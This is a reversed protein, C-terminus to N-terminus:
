MLGQIYNMEEYEGSTTWGADLLDYLLQALERDASVIQRMVGDHQRRMKNVYYHTVDDSDSWHASQLRQFIAKLRPPNNGIRVCFDALGEEDMQATLGFSGWRFRNVVFEADNQMYVTFGHAAIFGVKSSSFDVRLDLWSVPDFTFAYNTRRIGSPWYRCPSGFSNVEIGTIGSEGLALAAATLANSTILNGQSHSYIRLSRRAAGDLTVLIQYLSYTAPNDDILHGVFDVLSLGPNSARAAVHAAQIVTRWASMSSVLPATMNLKDTICQGLDAWFGDTRNYVGIVPCAQLLSLGRASSAHDAGTNDMGNVFIVRRNQDFWSKGAAEESTYLGIQGDASPSGSNPRIVPARM